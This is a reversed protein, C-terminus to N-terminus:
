EGPLESIPPDSEVGAYECIEDPACVDVEGGVGSPSTADVWEATTLRTYATVTLQEDWLCM